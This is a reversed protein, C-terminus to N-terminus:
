SKMSNDLDLSLAIRRHIRYRNFFSTRIFFLTFLIILVVFEPRLIIYATKAGSKFLDYLSEEMKLFRVYFDNFYFVASTIIGTFLFGATVQMVTHKKLKVRSWGVLPILVFLFLFKKGLVTALVVYFLTIYSTHFSIKWFLTIISFIVLSSIYILFILRILIDAGTLQLTIFGALFSLTSILLPIFRDKRSYMQLDGIFGYKYMLLISLYPIFSGFIFAVLFAYLSARLSTIQYFCGLAFIPMALVSGDFVYSVIKAFKKM